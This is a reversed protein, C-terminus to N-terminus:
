QFHGRGIRKMDRGIIAILYNFLIHRRTDSFKYMCDPCRKMDVFCACCAKDRWSLSGYSFVLLRGVRVISLIDNKRRLIVSNVAISM